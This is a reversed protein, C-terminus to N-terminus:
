IENIIGSRNHVKRLTNIKGYGLAIILGKYFTSLM